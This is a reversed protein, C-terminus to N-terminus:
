KLKWTTGEPSDLLLVGKAALEDRIADARAFDRNKRAQKREEILNEIVAPSLGSDALGEEQTKALWVAPASRFLGLVGGLKEVKTLGDKLVLLSLPCEDFRKEGMIRNMGRVAEFLHGIALATNFDDDMAECFRDELAEIRDYVEREEDKVVECPVQSPIPTKELIDHAAKLSEYFRTLGAKADELNQDSFDIPSRYHASLIFFRVVEPDYKKLIDRITFFNGLSKSMKEQNVNVFGNHLWYKVFPQEFAGESQAIENEHHPFVLDKGGGHIDFSEGLFEVSMASCEIHWGPRGPGWPSEWAPEGPKAAKWLAFDMPNRKREGPAIRAGARMEDMNRKSLKLYDPFKDVAYYVDGEAEYAMGKDILRQVIAQIQPIFETAKPQHTPQELGLAAMDEDFARIFEESLEKSSIGRENARKIIKDDVDTYNRVYTVDYGAFRLYRYVIDFVINARAHGIHCYDYVTVGCVYMGVKGPQLPVFEEKNGSLTNFVRLTM